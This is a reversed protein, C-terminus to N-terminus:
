RADDVPIADVPINERLILRNLEQVYEVQYRLSGNLFGQAVLVNSVLDTTVPRLNYTQGVWQTSEISTIPDLSGDERVLREGERFDMAPRITGDEAVIPHQTTVKLQRGSETTFILIEQEVPKMDFTYNQVENTMFSLRDFTSEPTLTVVDIMGAEVARVIPVYGDAFRIEQDPTYCGPECVWENYIDGSDGKYTYSVNPINPVSVLGNAGATFMSGPPGQGAPYGGSAYPWGQYVPGPGRFVFGEITSYIPYLHYSPNNKIESDAIATLYSTNNNRTARMTRAWNTRADASDVTTADLNCRPHNTVWAFAPAAVTTVLGFGLLAGIDLIKKHM